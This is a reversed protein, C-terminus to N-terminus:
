LWVADWFAYDGLRQVLGRRLPQAVLRRAAEAADVEEGLATEAMHGTWLRRLTPDRRRAGRTTLSRMRAIATPLTDLPGVQVLGHWHDPMLVWALLRGDRWVEARSGIEAVCRALEFDEFPADGAAPVSVQHIRGSSPEPEARPLAHSSSSRSPAPQSM